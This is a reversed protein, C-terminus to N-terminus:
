SKITSTDFPQATRLLQASISRRYASIALQAEDGNHIGTVCIGLSQLIIYGSSHLPFGDANCAARLFALDWTVLITEICAPTRPLLTCDHFTSSADFRFICNVYHYETFGYRIQRIYQPTGYENICDEPTSVDFYITDVSKYPIIIM